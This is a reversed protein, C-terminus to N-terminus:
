VHRDLLRDIRASLDSHYRDMKDELRQIAIGRVEDAAERTSRFEDIEDRKVATRELEDLRRVTHKAVWGLAGAASVAVFGLASRLTDPIAPM